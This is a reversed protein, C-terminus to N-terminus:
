KMSLSSPSGNPPSDQILGPIKSEEEKKSKVTCKREKSCTGTSEVM